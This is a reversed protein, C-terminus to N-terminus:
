VYTHIQIIDPIPHSNLKKTPLHHRNKFLFTTLDTSPPSKVLKYIYSYTTFTILYTAINNYLLM